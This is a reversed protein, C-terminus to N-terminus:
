KMNCIKNWLEKSNVKLKDKEKYILILPKSYEDEKIYIYESVNKKILGLHKAYRIEEKLQERLYDDIIRNNLKDLKHAIIMLESRNM